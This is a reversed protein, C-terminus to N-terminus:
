NLKTDMTLFLPDWDETICLWCIRNWMATANNEVWLFRTEHLKRDDFSSILDDVDERTM